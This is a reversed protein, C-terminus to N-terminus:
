HGAVLSVFFHGVNVFDWKGNEQDLMSPDGGNQLLIRTIEALDREAAYHLATQNLKDM